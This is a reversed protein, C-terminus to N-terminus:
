KKEHKGITFSQKKLYAEFDIGGYMAKHEKAKRIQEQRKEALDREQNRSDIIRREEMVFEYNDRRTEGMVKGRYIYAPDEVSNEMIIPLIPHHVCPSTSIDEMMMPGNLVMPYNPDFM